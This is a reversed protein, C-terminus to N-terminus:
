VVVSTGSDKGANTRTSSVTVKRYRFCDLATNVTVNRLIFDVRIKNTNKLVTNSCRKRGFPWRLIIWFIPTLSLCVGHGM